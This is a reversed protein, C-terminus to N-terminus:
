KGTGVDNRDGKRGQVYHLLRDDGGMSAIAGVLGLLLMSPLVIPLAIVAILGPIFAKIFRMM